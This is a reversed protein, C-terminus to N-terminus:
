NNTDDPPKNIFGIGAVLQMQLPGGDEGTLELKDTLKGKLKLGTELYRHRTAYDAVGQVKGNLIIPRTADLGELAKKYLREDTLGMTEMLIENTIGLKAFVSKRLASAMQTLGTPLPDVKKKKYVLRLAQTSDECGISLYERWWQRETKTLKHTSLNVPALESNM